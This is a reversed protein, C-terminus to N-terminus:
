KGSSEVGLLFFGINVIRDSDNWYYCYLGSSNFDGAILRDGDALLTDSAVYYQLPIPEGVRKFHALILAFLLAISGFSKYHEVPMTHKDWLFGRHHLMEEATKNTSDPALRPVWFVLSDSTPEDYFNWSQLYTLNQYCSGAQPAHLKLTFGQRVQWAVPGTYGLTVAYNRWSLVKIKASKKEHDYKEVLINVAEGDDKTSTVFICDALKAALTALAQKVGAPDDAIVLAEDTTLTQLWSILAVASLRRTKM